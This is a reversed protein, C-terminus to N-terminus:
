NSRLNDKIFTTLLIWILPDYLTAAQGDQSPDRFSGMFLIVPNTPVLSNPDDQDLIMLYVFPRDCRFEIPVNLPANLWPMLFGTPAAAVTGQEVVTWKLISVIRGEAIM